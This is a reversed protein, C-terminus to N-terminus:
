PVGWKHKCNKCGKETLPPMSTLINGTDYVTDSLGCKPCPTPAGQTSFTVGTHIGFATRREIEALRAEIAALRFEM